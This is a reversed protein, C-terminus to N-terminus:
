ATVELRSGRAYSWGRFFRFEGCECGRILCRDAYNLHSARRDGCYCCDELNPSESDPLRFELLEVLSVGCADAIDELQSVRPETRGTEWASILQVSVRIRKALDRQGMRRALRALRIRRPIEQAKKIM